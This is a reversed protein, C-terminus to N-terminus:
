GRAITRGILSSITQAVCGAGQVVLRGVSEAEFESAYSTESRIRPRGSQLITWRYRGRQLRDPEIRVRYQPDDLM